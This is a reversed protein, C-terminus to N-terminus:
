APQLLPANEFVKLNLGCLCCHVMLLYISEIEDVPVQHSLQRFFRAGVELLMEDIARLAYGPQLRRLVKYSVQPQHRCFLRRL